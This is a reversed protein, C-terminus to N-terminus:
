QNFIEKSERGANTTAFQGPESLKLGVSEARFKGGRGLSERQLVVGIAFITHAELRLTARGHKACFSEEDRSTRIIAPEVGPTAFLEFAHANVVCGGRQFTLKTAVFSNNDGAAAVGGALGRHEKGLPRGFHQEENPSIM